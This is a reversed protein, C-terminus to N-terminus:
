VGSGGLLSVGYVLSAILLLPLGYWAVLIAVEAILAGILVCSGAVIVAFRIFFGIFRSVINNLIAQTWYRIPLRDLSITDRRWPAFLTGLLLPISFFSMLNALIRVGERVGRRPADSYFWQLFLFAM